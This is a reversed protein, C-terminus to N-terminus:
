RFSFRLRLEAGVAGTSQPEVVAIVQDTIQYEVNLAVDSGTEGGMQDVVRVQMRDSIRKGVTVRTGGEDGQALSFEEVGLHQKALKGGFLDIASLSLGTVGAGTGGGALAEDRTKGTALLFVLDDQPFPPESDLTLALGKSVTGDLALRVSVDEGAHDVISTSEFDIDPDIRVPDEFTASGHTVEFDRDFFTLKGEVVDVEGLLQPRAATGSVSLDASMTAHAVNNRIVITEPGTVKIGLRIRDLMEASTHNSSHLTAAGSLPKVLGAFLEVDRDYLADDIRVEGSVESGQRSGHGELHGSALLRLTKPVRYPLESFDVALRELSQSELDAAGTAHIEGDGVKAALQELTVSKTHFALSGQVDSIEEPFDRVSVSSVAVHIPGDATFAQHAWQFRVSADIKGSGLETGQLFPNFWQPDLDLTLAGDLADRTGHAEARLRGGDGLELALEPVDVHGSGLRADTPHALDVQKGAAELHLTSLTLTGELAALDSLQGTVRGHAVVKGRADALAPPLRSALTAFVPDLDLGPLDLEVDFSRKGSLEATGKASGNQPLRADATIRDHELGADLALAGLSRARYALDPVSATAHMVPEAMPGSATATLTLNGTVGSDALEPVHQLPTARVEVTVGELTRDRTLRGRAEIPVGDAVAALRSLEFNGARSTM